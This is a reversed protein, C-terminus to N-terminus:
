FCFAFLPEGLFAGTLHVTSSACTMTSKFSFWPFVQAYWGRGLRLALAGAFNFFAHRTPRRPGHLDIVLIQLGQNLRKRRLLHFEVAFAHRPRISYSACNLATIASSSFVRQFLIPLATPFDSTVTLFLAFFHPNVLQSIESQNKQLLKQPISFNWICSKNRIFSEKGTHIAELVQNRGKQYVVYDASSNVSPGYTKRQTLCNGGRLPTYTSATILMSGRLLKGWDLSDNASMVFSVSMM